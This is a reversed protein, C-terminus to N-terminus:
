KLHPLTLLKKLALEKLFRSNLVLFIIVISVFFGFVAFSLISTLLKPKTNFRGDLGINIMINTNSLKQNIDKVTILNINDKEDTSNLELLMLEFKHVANYYEYDILEAKLNEILEKNDQNKESLLYNDITLGTKPSLSLPTVKKDKYFEISRQLEKKKIEKQSLILDVANQTYINLRESIGARVVKNLEVMVEDILKEAIEFNDARFNIYKESINLEKLSPFKKRIFNQNEVIIPGVADKFKIHTTDSVKLRVMKEDISNLYIIAPFSKSVKYRYNWNDEASQNYVYGLFGFLIPLLIIQFRKIFIFM